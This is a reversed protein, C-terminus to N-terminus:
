VVSKRDAKRKIAMKMQALFTPSFEDDQSTCSAIYVNHKLLSIHKDELCKNGTCCLVVDAKPLGESINVVPFSYASAKLRRVPNIECISVPFRTKEAAVKAAASGIKGYGIVLITKSEALHTYNTIRLIHDVADTIAKGVNYDESDKIQSRAVSILRPVPKTPPLGQLVKQYKQLGNETDEVFGMVNPMPNKLVHCFYGGIDIFIIPKNPDPDIFEQVFYSSHLVLFERISVREPDFTKSLEFYNRDEANMQEFMAKLEMKKEESLKLSGKTFIKKAINRRLLWDHINQDPSSGKAILAIVTGVKDLAELYFPLTPVLHGSIIFQVEQKMTKVDKVFCHVVDQYFDRIIEREADPVDILEDLQALHESPSRSPAIEM